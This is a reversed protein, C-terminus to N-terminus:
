SPILVGCYRGSYLFVVFCLTNLVALFRGAKVSVDRAVNEGFRVLPYLLRSAMNDDLRLRVMKLGISYGPSRTYSLWYLLMMCVAEVHQSAELKCKGLIPRLKAAAIASVEQDVSLGDLLANRNLDALLEVM